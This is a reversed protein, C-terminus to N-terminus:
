VAGFDVSAALLDKAPDQYNVEVFPGWEGDSGQSRRLTTISSLTCRRKRPDHYLKMNKVSRAVMVIPMQHSVMVVEGGDATSWADAVAALMRAEVSVFPEGWSPKTPNVVWPWVRPRLLVGPGFEFKKGEFKNWPEIIREETVIPLGFDASWPAASEQARQLPSAYLATIDRGALSAAASAAMKVGLESLHYGPIRGYLIGDPNFVEGHRVLHILDAPV